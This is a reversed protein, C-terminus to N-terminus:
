TLIISSISVICNNADTVTVGYDGAALGTATQTTQGISFGSEKWDYSYPATGGVPFAQIRGDSQPTIPNTTPDQYIATIGLADPETINFYKVQTVGSADAVTLIYAGPALIAPDAPTFADDTWTITYPATGGSVVVTASGDADGNCTINTYTLGVYLTAAELATLTTALSGVLMCALFEGSNPDILKAYGASCQVKDNNYITAEQPTVCGAFSQNEDYIAVHGVPCSAGDTCCSSCSGTCSTNVCM